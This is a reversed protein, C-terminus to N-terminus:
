GPIPGGKLVQRIKNAIESFSFPKQIFPINSDLAGHHAVTDDLYGSMLLVKLDPLTRRLRKVLVVGSMEPMVVDTIVLDPTLGQEEVQLLAEGGNAAAFVEFGLKSLITQLLGRLSEEDEVLLVRRGAGIEEEKQSRIQKAQPKEHTQPLYIKFTAGNGPESDVLIFGGSQKVIGYVTSLGLGTGKGKPKTTFFPDFIQALVARDMGCGTDTVSIMVYPGPLVGAHHKVDKQDLIVNAIEIALKGGRPMADRANVALNIMVQDFQTPDMFVMAPDEAPSIQLDIDEGILRRLMKAMQDLHVNLNLVEPQLTQKRSFALLQHVLGAARREAEMIQKVDDLLPDGPHLKDMMMDCYGRIVLLMNNFDHAVGGVLRGLSEMKQAQFLETLIKKKEAEAQKRATIDSVVGVIHTVMGNADRLPAASVQIDIIAGDKKKGCVEVNIFSEGRLARDFLSRAADQQNDIFISPVRDQVETRLWGFIQEAAPNWLQVRGSRDLLVIAVPSAQIMTQYFERALRRTELLMEVRAQLEIKEIPGFILEDVSKWLHRTAMGVDQRSSVFLFPLFAPQEAQKRAQIREWLRDLAVGDVVCLDFAGNLAEDSEAMLVDYRPSLVEMLLRRNGRHDLLLLIKSM